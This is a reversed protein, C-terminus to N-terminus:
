NKSSCKCWIRPTSRTKPWTEIIEPPQGGFALFIKWVAEGSFHLARELRIDRIGRRPGGGDDPRDASLLHSCNFLRSLHFQIKYRPLSHSRYGSQKEAKLKLCTPCLAQTKAFFSNCDARLLQSGQNQNPCKVQCPSSKASKDLFLGEDNAASWSILFFMATGGRNTYLIQFNNINFGKEEINGKILHRTQTM